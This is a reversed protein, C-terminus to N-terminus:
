RLNLDCSKCKQYNTIKPNGRCSLDSGGSLVLDVTGTITMEADSSGSLDLKADKVEFGYAEIDSGGSATLMLQETKGELFADSGNELNIRCSTGAINRLEIDSGGDADLEISQISEFRVQADSGGSFRATLEDASLRLRDLDSGGDLDLEFKEAAITNEAYIDCGGSANIGNLTTFTLHINRERSERIRTKSYIHLVGNRVETQVIDVLNEDTEITLAYADGQTLVLDWGDTANISTFPSIDRAEKIVNGNGRIAQAQLSVFVTLLIVCCTLKRTICM